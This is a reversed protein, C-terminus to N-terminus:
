FKLIPQRDLCRIPWLGFLASNSHCTSSTVKNCNGNNNNNYKQLKLIILYILLNFHVLRQNQDLRKTELRDQCNQM